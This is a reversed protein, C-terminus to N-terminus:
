KQKIQPIQHHFTNPQQPMVQNNLDNQIQQQLAAQKKLEASEIIEAANILKTIMRRPLNMFDIVSIKFNEGIRLRSYQDIRLDWGSLEDLGEVPTDCVLSLPNPDDANMLGYVVSYSESIAISKNISSEHHISKTNASIDQLVELLM